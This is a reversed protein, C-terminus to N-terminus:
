SVTVQKLAEGLELRLNTVNEELLEKEVLQNCLNQILEEQSNCKLRLDTFVAESRTLTLKLSHHEEALNDYMNRLTELQKAAYNRGKMHEKVKRLLTRNNRDM